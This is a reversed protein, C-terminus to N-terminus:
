RINVITITNTMQQLRSPITKKAENHFNLCMSERDRAFAIHLKSRNTSVTM